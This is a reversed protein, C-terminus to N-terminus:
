MRTVRGDVAIGYGQDSNTGGLYTSYVLDDGSPNLKTVFSLIGETARHNDTSLREFTPFNDSYTYGTVYANGSGDVAIGHPWDTENGGVYTSYVLDSGSPDLKTVFIDYM